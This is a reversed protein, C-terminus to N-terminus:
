RAASTSGLVPRAAGGALWQELAADAGDTFRATEPGPWRAYHAGRPAGGDLEVLVTDTAAAAHLLMAGSAVTRYGGPASADLWYPQVSSAASQTAICHQATLFYPAGPAGDRPAVLTAACAYSAADRTYVLGAAADDAGEKLAAAPAMVFHSLVPATVIVEERAAGRPVEIEIVLSAGEVIPSWYMRGEGDMDGDHRNRALARLARAAPVEFTTRSDPAYFRLIAGAPLSGIRMGVRLAAAGESTVRVAAVHGGEPLPTWDLQAQMGGATALAPLARAYGIQRPIHPTAAPAAGADSVESAAPAGLAIAARAPTWAALVAVASCCAFIRSRLPM